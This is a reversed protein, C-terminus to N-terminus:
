NSWIRYNVSVSGLILQSDYLLLGTALGNEVLDPVSHPILAMQDTKSSVKPNPTDLLDDTLM